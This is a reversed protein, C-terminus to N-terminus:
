EKHEPAKKTPSWVLLVIWVIFAILHVGVLAYILSGYGMFLDSSEHGGQAM